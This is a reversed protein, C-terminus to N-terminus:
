LTVRFGQDTGEVRVATLDRVYLAGDDGAGAPPAGVVVLRAESARVAAIGAAADEFGVCDAASLGLEHAGLLYGEPSPKSVEVREATIATEPMALGAARMRVEALDRHASTVLAVPANLEALRELLRAAGPIEVVGGTRTEEERKVWANADDREADSLHALFHAITVHAQRGHGFDYVDQARIDHRSALEGWVEEVVATSDVLTGDMDFLFGRTTFSRTM